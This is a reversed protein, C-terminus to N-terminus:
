GGAVRGYDNTKNTKKSADEESRRGRGREGEQEEKGNGDKEGKKEEM